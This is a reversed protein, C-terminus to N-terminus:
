KGLLTDASDAFGPMGLMEGATHTSDLLVDTVSPFVFNALSLVALLAQCFAGPEVFVVAPQGQGRDKRNMYLGWQLGHKM